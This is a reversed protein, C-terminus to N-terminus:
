SGAIRIARDPYNTIVAEVGMRVALQLHEEENVTWVHTKLGYEHATKVYEPDQLHYIAPHLAEVKAVDRAYPAVGIWNDSYLLGTRLTPDLDKLRVLTSHNFSSYIVRDEMGMEKALALAKEEIGQYWIIGTKLEVNVSLGTPALLEYVERLTPIQVREYGEPHPLNVNLEKLELLTFDKVWGEKGSVREVTEDHIVVIEGDRTLQIDLEVADAGQEAALAFSELTNEPAYGSAGRHAWVQTKM